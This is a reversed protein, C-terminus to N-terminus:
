CRRCVYLTLLCFNILKRVLFGIYYVSTKLCNQPM